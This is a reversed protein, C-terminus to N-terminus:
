HRERQVKSEDAEKALRLQEHYIKNVTQQLDWELTRCVERAHAVAIAQKNRTEVLKKLNM